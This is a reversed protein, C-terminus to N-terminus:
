LGRVSWVKIMKDAGGSALTNGDPSLAIGHVIDSHGTLIGAQEGTSVQWLRINCDSQAGIIVQGRRSFVLANVESRAPVTRLLGGGAASWLKITKDTGSSAIIRGNPSFAVTKAMGEHGEFTRLLKGQEIQWVKVTGDEGVSAVEQGGPSLSSLV